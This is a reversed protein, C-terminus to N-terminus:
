DVGGCVCVWACHVGRVCVGVCLTHTDRRANSVLRICYVLGRHLLWLTVRICQRVFLTARICQRVALVSHLVLGGAVSIWGVEVDVCACHILTV